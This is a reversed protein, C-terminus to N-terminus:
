LKTEVAAELGILRALTRLRNQVRENILDTLAAPTELVLRGKSARIPTRALVGPMSASLLYAVRIASGLLRARVLLRTSLLSRLYLAGEGESGEHRLVAVLGLYARGPHDVGFFAGNTAISTAQEARYDPHARWGVDSLLCAAHRLRREESTEDVDSSSFLTDTWAILDDGYDPARSLLENLHRAAALLPDRARESEPLREYLLGERVGAASVVIEKPRARRIIEDLVIAAYALLPRRAASVSGINSLTESDVREVLSAFEAAEKTQISYNHMVDLSYNRQRMHLRALARWAGGVAYFTRGRLAELPKADILAKRAIRAAERPSRGSADMLALGGLPLTVGKGIHSRDVDILELSGGGLDGVVGDPSHIASIVGLASLQAERKGSLLAIDQGIAERAAALFAAGNAADRAAATAIVDIDSIDMTACLVKFRRLAALAKEMGEKPLRGTTLVGKGLGCMAKENFIPTLSRALAEYAVLRVSNSGIDVIAVPPSCQAVGAAGFSRV